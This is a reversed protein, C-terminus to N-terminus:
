WPDKAFWPEVEWTEIGQYLRDAEAGPGKLRTHWAFHDDLQWLPLVPLEDRCERDIQLALGKATPFEPARELLLLLQLVRPSALSALPDTAPPADYSPSLLPGADVIPEDCRSVRYALDFRRGARLDAELESEPREVVKVEVGAARFAEALKPAVAQAEPVSPYEFTLEIPKGGLERKAAAVLMRALLM